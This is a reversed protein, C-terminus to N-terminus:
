KGETLYVRQGIRIVYKPGAIGSREALASVPVHTCDSLHALSDGSRVIVYLGEHAVHGRVSPCTTRGVWSARRAAKPATAKSGASGPMKHVLGPEAPDVGTWETGAGEPAGTAGSADGPTEGVWPADPTAATWPSPAPAEGSATLAVGTGLAGTGLAAVALYAFPAPM